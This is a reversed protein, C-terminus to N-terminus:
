PHKTNRGNCFKAERCRGISKMATAIEDPNKVGRGTFAKCFARYTWRMAPKTWIESEVWNQQGKQLLRVMSAKTVTDDHISDFVRQNEMPDEPKFHENIISCVEERDMRKAVTYAVVQKWEEHNLDGVKELFLRLQFVCEDPTKEEDNKEGKEDDDTKEKRRKFHPRTKAAKKKKAKPAKAVWSEDEQPDWVFRYLSVLDDDTLDRDTDEIYEGEGFQALGICEMPKPAPQVMDETVQKNQGLFYLGNDRRMPAPDLIDLDENSTGFMKQLNQEALIIDRM